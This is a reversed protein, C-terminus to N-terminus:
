TFLKLSPKAEEVAMDDFTGLKGKIQLFYRDHDEKSLRHKMDEFGEKLHLAERVITENIPFVVKEGELDTLDATGIADISNM